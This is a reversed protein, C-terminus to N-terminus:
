VLGQATTWEGLVFRRYFAGEFMREYRERVAQSLGPNDDMTFHLHLANREEAKQIWERYFWHGPSEPNCSFWLQSGPM